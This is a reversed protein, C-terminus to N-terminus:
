SGEPLGNIGKLEDNVVRVPGARVLELTVEAATRDLRLRCLAQDLMEMAKEASLAGAHWAVRLRTSVIALLLADCTLQENGPPPYTLRM